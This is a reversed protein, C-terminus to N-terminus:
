SNHVPRASTALLQRHECWRPLVLLLTESRLGCTLLHTDSVPWLEKSAHWSAVSWCSCCRLSVGRVRPSVGNRAAERLKDVQVHQEATLLEVYDQLNTSMRHYSPRPAVRSLIDTSQRRRPSVLPSYLPEWLPPPTAPRTAPLTATNLRPHTPTVVRVLPEHYLPQYSPQNLTLSITMNTPILMESITYYTRTKQPVLCDAITSSHPSFPSYIVTPQHTRPPAQLDPAM